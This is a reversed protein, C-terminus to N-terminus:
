VTPAPAGLFCDWRSTDMCAIDGGDVLLSLMVSGSGSGAEASPVVEFSLISACIPQLVLQNADGANADSERPFVAAKNAHVHQVVVRQM